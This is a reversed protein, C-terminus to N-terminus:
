GVTEFIRNNARAVLAGDGAYVAPEADKPRVSAFVWKLHNLIERSVAGAVRNAQTVKSVTLRLREAADLLGKQQPKSVRSAIQSVALARATEPPLALEESMAGVLQRRFGEREHLHAALERERESLAQMAPVDARRMAEFKSQVLGLLQEFLNQLSELLKLLDRGRKSESPRSM